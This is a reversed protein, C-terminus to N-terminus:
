LFPLSGDFSDWGKDSWLAKRRGESFDKSSPVYGEAWCGLHGHPLPAKLRIKCVPGDALSKADLLVLDTTDAQSNYVLTSLYADDESSGDIKGIFVPASVFEGEGCKWVSEASGEAAGGAVCLAHIGKPAGQERLMSFVHGHRVSRVYPNITPSDLCASSLKQCTAPKSPDSPDLTWRVLRSSPTKSVYWEAPDPLDDYCVADIVLMGTEKDTYANVINEPVDCPGEFVQGQSKEDRPLMTIKTQGQRDVEVVERVTKGGAAYAVWNVKLPTEMLVYHTRTFGFDHFRRFEPAVEKRKTVEKWDEDWEVFNTRTLYSPRVLTKSCLGVVRKEAPDYKPIALPGRKPLTDRIRTSGVTYLGAPDLEYPLFCDDVALLRGSAFFVGSNATSKVDDIQNLGAAQGLVTGKGARSKFVHPGEYGLEMAKKEKLYGETRVFRNRAKCSGDGAFSWGCVMGDGDLKSLVKNAGFEFKAPGNTYLTGAMNTPIAGQVMSADIEYSGEETVTKMGSEWGGAVASCVSRLLGVRPARPSVASSPLNRCVHAPSFAPLTQAVNSLPSVIVFAVSPSYLVAALAASLLRALHRGM